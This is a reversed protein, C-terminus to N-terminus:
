IKKKPIKIMIDSLARDVVFLKDTEKDGDVMPTDFHSLYIGNRYRVALMAENFGFFSILTIVIQLTIRTRQFM